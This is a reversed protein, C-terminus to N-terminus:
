SMAHAVAAVTEALALLAVAGTLAAPLLGDRLMGDFAPERRSVTAGSGSRSALLVAWVALPIAAGACVVTAGYGEDSAVRLILMAGVVLSLGTRRWALLTREQQLGDDRGGRETAM